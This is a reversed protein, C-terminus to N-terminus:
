QMTYVESRVKDWVDHVAPEIPLRILRTSGNPFDLVFCVNFSGQRRYRIDCSLGGNYKSALARIAGTDISDIFEDGELKRRQDPVPRLNFPSPIGCTFIYALRSRWLIRIHALCFRWPISFIRGIVPLMPFVLAMYIAIQGADISTIHLQLLRSGLSPRM